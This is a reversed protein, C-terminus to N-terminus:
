RADSQYFVFRRTALINIGTIVMSIAFLMWAM